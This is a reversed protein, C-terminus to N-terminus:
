MLFPTMPLHILHSCFEERRVDGTLPLGVGSFPTSCLSMQSGAGAASVLLIMVVALSGVMAKSDAADRFGLVTGPM